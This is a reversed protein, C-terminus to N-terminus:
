VIRAGALRTEIMGVRDNVAQRYAGREEAMAHGISEISRVKDELAGVRGIAESNFGAIETALMELDACIIELAVITDLSMGAMSGDGNLYDRLSAVAAPLRKPPLTDLDSGM